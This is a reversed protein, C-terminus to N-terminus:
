VRYIYIYIHIHNRPPPLMCIYIYIYMYTYTDIYIYIYTCYVYLFIYIYTYVLCVRTSRVRKSDAVLSHLRTRPLCNPLSSIYDKLALALHLRLHASAPWHPQCLKNCLDTFSPCFGKKPWRRSAGRQPLWYGVLTTTCVFLTCSPCLM